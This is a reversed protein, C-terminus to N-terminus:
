GEAAVRCREFSERFHTLATETLLARKNTLITVAGGFRDVDADPNTLVDAWRTAYRLGTNEHKVHETQYEAYSKAVTINWGVAKLLADLGNHNLIMKVAQDANGCVRQLFDRFHKRDDELFARSVRLFKIADAQEKGSTMENRLSRVEALIDKIEAKVPDYANRLLNGFIHALQKRVYDRAEEVHAFEAVGNNQPSKTIEDLFAFTMDPRDMGPFHTPPATRNADFVARYSLVDKEVITIIPIKQSILARYENHTVSVDEKHDDGYRKGIILIGFDCEKVEHYCADAAGLEPLYGIEGHESMAPQYGLEALLDRISDRVHQLDRITSSVFIRPIM